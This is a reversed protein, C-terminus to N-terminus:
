PLSLMKFDKQKHKQQRTLSWSSSSKAQGSQNLNNETNSQCDTWHWHGTLAFINKKYKAETSTKFYLYSWLTCSTSISTGTNIEWLVETEDCNNWLFSLQWNKGQRESQTRIQKFVITRTKIWNSNLSNYWLIYFIPSLSTLSMTFVYLISSTIEQSLQKVKKLTTWCM